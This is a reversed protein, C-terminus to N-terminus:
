GQPYTPAPKQSVLGALEWHGTTSDKGCSLERLRGFAGRPSAVRPGYDVGDLNFLGLSALNPAHLEPSSVVARLTSTGADGYEAADPAAGVGFSDLVVIFVRRAM